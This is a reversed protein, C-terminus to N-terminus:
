RENGARKGGHSAHRMLKASSTREIDSWSANSEGRVQEEDLPPPGANDRAALTKAPNEISLVKGSTDTRLENQPVPRFLLSSRVFIHLESNEVVQFPKGAEFVYKPKDSVGPRQNPDEHEKFDAPVTRAPVMIMGHRNMFAPCWGIREPSGDDNPQYRYVPNTATM